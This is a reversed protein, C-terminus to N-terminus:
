RSSLRLGPKVVTALEHWPFVLFNRAASNMAVLAGHPLGSGLARASIEVGDTADVGGRLVAVERSHDHPNGAMGERPYVHFESDKDLQDTCVIYGAGGTVLIM